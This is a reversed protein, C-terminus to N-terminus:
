DKKHQGGTGLAFFRLRGGAIRYRYFRSLHPVHLLVFFLTTLVGLLALTSCAFAVIPELIVLVVVAPM